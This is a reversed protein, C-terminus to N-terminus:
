TESKGGLLRNVQPQFYWVGIPFFWISLFLRSFDGFRVKRGEKIAAFQQAAFWFAYLAGFIALLHFPLIISFNESASIDGSVGLISQMFLSYGAIYLLGLTFPIASKRLEFAVKNNASYGISFIWCFYIGAAINNIHGIKEYAKEFEEVSTADHILWFGLVGPGMLLIFLQWAKLRLFLRVVSELFM